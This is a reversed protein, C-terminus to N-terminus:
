AAVQTAHGCLGLSQGPFNWGIGQIKESMTFFRARASIQWM